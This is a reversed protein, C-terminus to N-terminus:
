ILEEMIKLRYDYEPNYKWIFGNEDYGVTEMNSAWDLGFMRNGAANWLLHVDNELGKSLFGGQGEVWNSYENWTIPRSKQGKIYRIAAVISGANISKSDFWGDTECCINNDNSTVNGLDFTSCSFRRDRFLDMFKGLLLSGIPQSDTTLLFMREFDFGQEYYARRIGTTRGAVHYTDFTIHRCGAEWVEEIYKQVDEKEDNIFAMYPEIRAVVRIGAASLKRIAELRKEYSPAGPELRKLIDNNSSILTVHVAAKAKNSSLSKLYDERGVLDSKTNIMVPYNNKALYELLALSIKQRGEIPLFDEFRIGFRLPIEKCIARQVEDGFPISGRGKFLKDLKKKYFDPNCHRLGMSKSNDFFSTYLTARFANAFCYRCKFQCTLGDWTDINLPMPCASARLSVEVFSNIEEANLLRENKLMEGKELDFQFYNSKRGKEKVGKKGVSGLELQTRRPIVKALASRLEYYNMDEIGIQVTLHEQKLDL